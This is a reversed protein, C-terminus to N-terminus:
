SDKRTPDKMAGFVGAFQPDAKVAAYAQDYDLGDKMLRDVASKVASSRANATSVDVRDGRIEVAQTNMAKREPLEKVVEEAGNATALKTEFTEREAPTIAGKKIALDLLGKRLSDRETTLAGNTTKLQDRETTLASVQGNATNLNKELDVKASNASTLANNRETLQAASTNATIAATICAAADATEPLGLAKRLEKMQQENMPDNTQNEAQPNGAFNANHTWAPVGSINPTSVLGVSELLEPYVTPPDGAAPEHWWLPSPYLPGKARASAGKANWTLLGELGSEGARLDTIGAILKEVPWRKQDTEPHGDWVPTSYKPGLGHWMNKFLRAAKGTISNWTSVMKEARDRDFHQVYSGDPSPHEGYPAIVAWSGSALTAINATSVAASLRPGASNATRFNPNLKQNMLRDKIQREWLLRIGRLSDTRLGSRIPVKSPNM